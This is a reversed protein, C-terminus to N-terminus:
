TVSTLYRQVSPFNNDACFEFLVRARFLDTAFLALMQSYMTETM